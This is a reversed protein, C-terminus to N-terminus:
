MDVLGRKLLQWVSGPHRTDALLSVRAVGSLVSTKVGCGVKSM